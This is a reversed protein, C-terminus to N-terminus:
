FPIFTIKFGVSKLSSWITIVPVLAPPYERNALCSGILALIILLTMVKPPTPLKLAVLRVFASAPFVADARGLTESVVCSMLPEDEM